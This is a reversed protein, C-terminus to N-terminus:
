DNKEKISAKLNFLSLKTQITNKCLEHIDKGVIKYVRTEPDPM